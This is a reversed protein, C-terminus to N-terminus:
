SRCFPFCFPNIYLILSEIKKTTGNSALGQVITVFKNGKRQQKNLVIKQAEFKKKGKPIGKGGRTQRKKEGGKDDGLAGAAQMQNLLEPLTRELWERCREPDLCFYLYCAFSNKEYNVQAM